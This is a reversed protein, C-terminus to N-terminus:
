VGDGIQAVIFQELGTNWFWQDRSHLGDTGILLEFGYTVVQRGIAAINQGPDSGAHGEVNPVPFNPIELYPIEVAGDLSAGYDSLGSGLVVAASHANRGSKLKIAEAAELLREYTM